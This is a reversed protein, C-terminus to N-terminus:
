RRLVLRLTMGALMALACIVIKFVLDVRSATAHHDNTHHAHMVHYDTVDVPKVWEKSVLFCSRVTPRRNVRDQRLVYPIDRLRRVKWQRLPYPETASPCGRRGADLCPSDGGM